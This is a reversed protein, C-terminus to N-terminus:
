RRPVIGEIGSSSPKGSMTHKLARCYRGGMNRWVRWWLSPILTQLVKILLHSTLSKQVPLITM